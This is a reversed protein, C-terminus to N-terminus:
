NGINEEISLNEILIEPLIAESMGESVESTFVSAM